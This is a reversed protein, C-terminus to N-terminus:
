NQQLDRSVFKYNAVILKDHKLLFIHCIGTGVIVTIVIVYDTHYM